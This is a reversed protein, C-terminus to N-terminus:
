SLIAHIIDVILNTQIQVLVIDGGLRVYRYGYPAPPLHVIVPQPVSYVTVGSPIRQGVDWKRAQGPPMCGNNKKALGPPCRRANGGYHQTYYERVYTRQQDNFYAGHKIEERHRKEARKEAKHEAKNAHKQAKEAHKGAKKEAKEEHKDKGGGHGQGQAFAPAAIFASAIALAVVRRSLSFKTNM